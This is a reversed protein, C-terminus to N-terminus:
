VTGNTESVLEYKIARIHWHVERFIEVRTELTKM